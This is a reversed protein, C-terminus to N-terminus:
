LDSVDNEVITMESDLFSLGGWKEQNEIHLRPVNDLKVIWSHYLIGCTGERKVLVGRGHCTNVRQGEKM